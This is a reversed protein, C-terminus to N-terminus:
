RHWNKKGWIRNILIICNIHILISAVLVKAQLRNLKSNLKNYKGRQVVDKDVVDNFTRLDVPVTKLKDGDLDDVKSKLSGLGNPVNVM